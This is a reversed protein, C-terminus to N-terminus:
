VGYFVILFGSLNKLFGTGFNRVPELIFGCFMKVFYAKQPNSGFDSVVVLFGFVFSVEGIGENWKSWIPANSVM